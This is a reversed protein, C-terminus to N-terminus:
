PNNGNMYVPILWKLSKCHIEPDKWITWLWDVSIERFCKWRGEQFAANFTISQWMSVYQLWLSRCRHKSMNTNNIRISILNLVWLCGFIVRIVGSAPGDCLPGETSHPCCRGSSWPECVCVWVAPQKGESYLDCIVSWPKISWPPRRQKHLKMDHEAKNQLLVSLYRTLCSSNVSILGNTYISTNNLQLRQTITECHM